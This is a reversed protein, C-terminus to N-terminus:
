LIDERKVKKQGNKRKRRKTSPGGGKLDKLSCRVENKMMLRAGKVGTIGACFDRGCGGKAVYRVKGESTPRDGRSRKKNNRTPCKSPLPGLTSETSLV